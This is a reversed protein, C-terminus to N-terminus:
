QGFCAIVWQAFTRGMQDGQKGESRRKVQAFVRDLNEKSAGRFCDYVASIEQGLKERARELRKERLL